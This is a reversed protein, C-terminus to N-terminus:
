FDVHLEYKFKRKQVQADEFLTEEDPLVFDDFDSIVPDNEPDQFCEHLWYDRFWPSSHVLAWWEDSFDEVTQYALPVFLPANPNLSSSSSRRSSVVEM